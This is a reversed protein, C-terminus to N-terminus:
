ALPMLLVAWALLSTRHCLGQLSQEASTLGQTGGSGVKTLLKSFALSLIEPRMLPHAAKIGLLRFM